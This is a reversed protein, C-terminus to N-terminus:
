LALLEATLADPASYFPSHDADLEVLKECPGALAMRRQAALSIARDRRCTLYVRPVRGFRAATTRVPESFPAPNQPTLRARARAIQDATCAGYFAAEVVDDRVRVCGPEECSVLNGTILTDADEGAAALMSQGDPLLFAALYVLKAIREPWREAAVSIVAGGMSHGLLIAPEDLEGLVEGVRAAYAELTQGTRPTPDSGHGPLDPARVQHGSAALQPAIEEYCWGGHWAGHILVYSAV